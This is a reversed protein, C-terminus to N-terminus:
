NGVKNHLWQQSNMLSNEYCTQCKLFEWKFSKQDSLTTHIKTNIYCKRVKWAELCSAQGQLKPLLDVRVGQSRTCLHLQVTLLDESQFKMHRRSLWVPWRTVESMLILPIHRCQLSGNPLFWSNQSSWKWLHNFQNVNNTSKISHDKWGHKLWGWAPRWVETFLELWAHCAFFTLWCSKNDHSRTIGHRCHCPEPFANFDHGGWIEDDGVFPVFVGKENGFGVGFIRPPEGDFDGVRKSLRGGASVEIHLTNRFSLDNLKVAMFDNKNCGIHGKWEM